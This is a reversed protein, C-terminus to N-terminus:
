IRKELSQVSSTATMSPIKDELFPISYEMTDLPPASYIFVLKLIDHEM